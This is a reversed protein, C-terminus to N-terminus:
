TLRVGKEEWELDVIMVVETSSARLEWRGAESEEIGATLGKLHDCFMEHFSWVQAVGSVEKADTENTEGEETEGLSERTKNEHLQFWVPIGWFNGDSVDRDTSRRPFWARYGRELLAYTNISGVQGAISTHLGYVACDKWCFIKVDDPKLESLQRSTSQNSNYRRFSLMRSFQEERESSSTQKPLSLKPPLAFIKRLTEHHFEEAQARLYYPDSPWRPDPEWLTRPM